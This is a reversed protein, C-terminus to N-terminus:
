TFASAGGGGPTPMGGGPSGGGGPASRAYPLTCTVDPDSEARRESMARGLVGQDAPLHQGTLTSIPGRGARLELGGQDDFLFLATQHANTLEHTADTIAQLTADLDLSASVLKDMETHNASAFVDATAGQM